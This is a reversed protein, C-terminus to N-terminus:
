KKLKSIWDSVWSWLSSDYQNAPTIKNFILPKERVKNYINVLLIEPLDEGSNIGSSNHIYQGLTMKNKVASNHMDTNLMIIGFALVYVADSNKFVSNRYNCAFYREAFFLMFKTIVTFHAPFHIYELLTTLSELVTQDTFDFAEFYSGILGSTMADRLSLYIGRSVRSVNKEHLFNLTYREINSQPTNQLESLGPIVTPNSNFERIDNSRYVFCAFYKAKWTDSAVPGVIERGGYDHM